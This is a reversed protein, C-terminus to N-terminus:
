GAAIAEQQIAPRRDVNRDKNRRERAAIREREELERKFDRASLEEQTGQGRERTKLSQHSPSCPFM